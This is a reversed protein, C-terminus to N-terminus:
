SPCISASSPRTPQPQSSSCTQLRLCMDFPHTCAKVAVAIRSLLGKIQGAFVVLCDQRAEGTFPLSVKKIGGVAQTIWISISCAMYHLACLTTATHAPCLM